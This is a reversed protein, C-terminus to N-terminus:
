VHVFEFLDRVHVGLALSIKYLTEVSAASKGLEVQSLFAVSNGTRRALEALTIEVAKRRERVAEGVAERLAQESLRLLGKEHLCKMVTHRLQALPFPKTIYDHVRARIANQAGEITPFGTIIIIAADPQHEHLWSLVEETKLGPLIYDLVVLHYASRQKIAAEIAQPDRATKIRFDKHALAEKLMQCILDDDDVILIRLTRTCEMQELSFDIPGTGVSEEAPSKISEDAVIPEVV